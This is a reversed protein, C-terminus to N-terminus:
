NCYKNIDILFSELNNLVRNKETEVDLLIKRQKFFDVLKEKNKELSDRGSIEESSISINAQNRLICALGKDFSITFLTFNDQSKFQHSLNCYQLIELDALGKLKNNKIKSLSAMKNTSIDRFDKIKKKTIRDKTNYRYIGEEIHSAIIRNLLNRDFYELNLRQKSAIQHGILIPPKFLEVKLPDKAQKNSQYKKYLDADINVKKLKKIIQIIKREDNEIKKLISRTSRYDKCDTFISLPIQFEDVLKKYNHITDIFDNKQKPIERKNFEFFICPTIIVSVKKLAYKTLFEFTLYVALLRLYRRRKDKINKYEEKHSLDMLIQNDLILLWPEKMGFIAKLNDIAFVLEKYVSLKEEENLNKILDITKQKIRM